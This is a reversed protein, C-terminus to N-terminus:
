LLFMLEVIRLVHKLYTYIIQKLVFFKYMGWIYKLYQLILTKTIIKYDSFYVFNLALLIKIFIVFNFTSIGTVDNVTSRM